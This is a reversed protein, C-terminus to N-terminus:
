FYHTYKCSLYFCVFFFCFFSLIILDERKKHNRQCQYIHYLMIKIILIKLNEKYKNNKLYAVRKKDGIFNIAKEFEDSVKYVSM